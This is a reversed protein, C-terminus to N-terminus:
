SGEREFKAALADYGVSEFSEEDGGCRGEKVEGDVDGVPVHAM